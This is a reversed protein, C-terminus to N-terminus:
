EGAEGDTGELVDIVGEVSDAPIGALAHSLGLLLCVAALEWHKNEIAKYLNSM